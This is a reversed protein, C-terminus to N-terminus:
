REFRAQRAKEAAEIVFFTYDRNVRWSPEVRGMLKQVSSSGEDDEFPSNPTGILLLVGYAQPEVQLSFKDLIAIKVLEDRTLKSSPKVEIYWTGENETTIFFDPLYWGAEGLDFGELEYQWKIGLSDFFVAWRAELRSRFKYGKYVTEIPKIM